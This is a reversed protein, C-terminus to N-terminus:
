RQGPGVSEPAAVKGALFDEGTDHLARLLAPWDELDTAFIREVMSRTLTPVLYNLMVPPYGREDALRAWYLNPSDWSEALLRSGYGSFTPMPAINLLELGSNQAMNPHPIGFDHALRERSADEPHQRFLDELERGATGVAGIRQPFKERFELALYFADAPTLQHFVGAIQGASLAQELQRQRQRLLRDSLIGLVKERLDEDQVSATLLEEGVRQYLTIAHLEESSVNWWRPLIANALLQPTVENWILAQVNSPSIFDQELSALAYLLGALSGVFHAGGGAPSGQGFLQPEQWLHTIGSVTDGSFDHSRVLLPNTHLAQAGPPEYYAYNLGVLTDRLFSALQGRAEELQQPSSSASRLLKPLDTKMQLDTHHNNYVGAAWQDREGMSFIPRPMEFERTEAALLIQYEQPEKGRAKEKLADGVKMLTDLSILRQDDLVSRIRAASQRQMEKEAPNSQAPGALLEIIEDQSVIPKGTSFRFLEALSTKGADYLQAATRATAFPEITKQLSTNLESNPIEKQRALIQWIGINAQLIGFANGRNPRPINEVDHAVQLFRTISRDNLQPFESFVPYQASFDEYKAALLRVTAPELRHGAPRLRDMESIALYSQLPTADQQSRSLAFMTRILQDADKLDGNQGLLRRSTKADRERSLIESWVQLNGPIVPSGTEDFQLRAVLLLLWPAPRFTGRTAPTGSDPALLANYFLRLRQSDTFYEQQKGSIRSLVDFYAALWGRDKGLLKPVFSAPTAPDAGVLDKWAAAAHQGGPVLVRGNSVCLERGYFDLVAAYPLLKRLGVSQELFERTEPDLRSLAWYLRAVSPDYLITDLLDKSNEKVNKNGLQTWVSEAFQVPVADSTYPYEFPKGGQLTEELAPLPFGSDIALFAREPDDTQLTTNPEGCDPRIRYGLIRLLPVSDNCGSVRLVMGTQAALSSLERAQVVYRRLLILFETPRSIGNYGETFVNHSLLPLVEDPTVQQSIGALRLFSRQSGPITFQSFRPSTEALVAASAMHFPKGHDAGLPEGSQALLNAKSFAFALVLSCLASPKV